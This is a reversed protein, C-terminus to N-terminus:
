IYYLYGPYGQLDYFSVYTSNIQTPTKKKETYSSTIYYIAWNYLLLIQMLQLFHLVLKKTTRSILMEYKTKM